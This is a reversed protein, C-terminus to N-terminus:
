FPQGEPLDYGGCSEPPEEIERRTINEFRTYRKNFYL